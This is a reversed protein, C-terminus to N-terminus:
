SAPSPCVCLCQLRNVQGALLGTSYFYAKGSGMCSDNCQEEDTYKNGNGGCGLYEFEVCAERGNDIYTWKKM